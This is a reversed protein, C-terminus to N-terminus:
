APPEIAGQSEDKQAKVANASAWARFSEWDDIIVQVMRQAAAFLSEDKLGKLDDRVAERSKRTGLHINATEWGMANLLLPEGSGNRFDAANIRVCDPALRRVVWRKHVELFPDPVRVARGVVDEYLSKPPRNIGEAWVFASPILAKAERAMKGGGRETVAVFRPRGLSGIGSVRPLIKVQSGAASLSRRLLREARERTHSLKAGEKRKKEKEIKQWFDVPNKLSGLAMERLEPNGEALVFPRGGAEFSDRYGSLIERCGEAPDTSVLHARAALIVSATLRVLDFVYPLRYAEDFDNVGWVLRGEADRWTGFNEVHLDGVCRVAPAGAFEPCHEPWLQAWRYFTGRFFPFADAAESMLEKKKRLDHPVTTTQRSLWTEYSRTAEQINM